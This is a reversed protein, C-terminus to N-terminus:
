HSARIPNGNTRREDKVLRFEVMEDPPYDPCQVEVTIGKDRHLRNLRAMERSIFRVTCRQSAMVIREVIGNIRSVAKQRATNGYVHRSPDGGCSVVYENIAEYLLVEDDYEMEGEYRKM